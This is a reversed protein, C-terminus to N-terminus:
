SWHVTSTEAKNLSTDAPLSELLGEIRTQEAALNTPTFNQQPILEAQQILMTRRSQELQQRYAEQVVEPKASSFVSKPVTADSSLVGDISSIKTSLDDIRPSDTVGVLGKAAQQGTLKAGREALTDIQQSLATSSM